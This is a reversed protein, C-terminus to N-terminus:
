AASSEDLEEISVRSPTAGTSMSSSQAIRPGMVIVRGTGGATIGGGTGAFMPGLFAQILSNFQQESSQRAYDDAVAYREDDM